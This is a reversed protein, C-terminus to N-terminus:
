FLSGEMELKILKNLEIAYEMPLERTFDAIFGLVIMANAEAETFGRSMLYFLENEGIKGVKAEHSLTTDKEDIQMTPYTDSRSYKDLMLADCRVSSTSNTAGKAVKLLGRYTARGGDKSVSKSIIRSSTNPALHVAKGGADQHQGKGAFAVSLIDAKANRGVLYVSPYKMTLKSNHVLIGNAIFNHSGEIELDYTPKEGLPDINTIKYLGLHPPLPIRRTRTLHYMSRDNHEKPIKIKNKKSFFERLKSLGSIHMVYATFEKEGYDYGSFSMDRKETVTTIKNVEIGSGMALLRLDEVLEKNCCKFRASNKIIRGDAEIYGALFARKQSLPLSFIWKPVRKTHANGEMGNLKLFEAVILSCYYIVIRNKTESYSSLEFVSNVVEIIKERAPDTPPVSFCIIADKNNGTKKNLSISVNGDGVIMGLLWLLDDNTETPINVSTYKHATNMKYVAGYQNRNVIEREAMKLPQKLVYPKGLDPMERPALIFDGLSLFELPTWAMSYRGLKRPRTSDYKVALFPHNKTATVERKGNQLILKYTPKIGSFKTAIVKQAELQQTTENYTIVKDGPKIQQIEARGPNTFIETGEALCGSNLDLWEVTANEHAFARKTVLNYVNTSWNQMTVYRIKSDKKAILEVVAAHLSDTSYVPSTCGEYYVVESGEDAIILTREFQGMNKSNIRFYAQLPATVKVGKPVYIFSGGSWCATNLAAFKNDGAPVIKGFYEKVLEPHEKIATDMDCFIVGLKTLDEQIKHYVSQSEFQAGAGALFKREAEPIGLKEFTKKINEPVKEWDDEVNENSKLFYTISDFDIDKLEGGWAPMPKAFFISLAKLRQEKMWLPENKIESIKSVTTENLGTLKILPTDEVNFGYKEEYNENITRLDETTVTAM